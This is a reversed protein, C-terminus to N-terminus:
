VCTKIRGQEDTKIAHVGPGLKALKTLAKAVPDDRNKM